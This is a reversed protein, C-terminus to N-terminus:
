QMTVNVSSQFIRCPTPAGSFGNAKMPRHIPREGKSNVKLREQWCQEGVNKVRRTTPDFQLNVALNRALERYAWFRYSSSDITATVTGHQPFRMYDSADGVTTSRDHQLYIPLWCNMQNPGTGCETGITTGKNAYEQTLLEDWAPKILYVNIRRGPEAAESPWRVYGEIVPSKWDSVNYAFKASGEECHKAFDQLAPFDFIVKEEKLMLRLNCLDELLGRGDEASDALILDSVGRRILSLAGTNEIPGGDSLRITGKRGTNPDVAPINVGWQIAGLLSAFGKYVLAGLSPDVNQTDLFAASARVGTTISEFPLTEFRGIRASGHGFPTIEYLSYANPLASKQGQTTNLIWVPLSPDTDYMKRLEAWTNKTGDVRLTHGEGAANTYAWHKDPDAASRPMPNLGWTREIGTEYANIVASQAGFFGPVIELFAGITYGAIKRKPSNQKDGTPITIEDTFVDPWRVIHAQWRYPDADGGPISAVRHHNRLCVAEPRPEAAAAAERQASAIANQRSNRLYKSDEMDKKNVLWAPLCDAFISDFAFQNQGEKQARAWAMKKSFYWYAGYGGGSATSIAHVHQLLGSQHLGHLVGHAFMGAKTGGGSLALGIRPGPRGDPMDQVYRNELQFERQLSEATMAALKLPPKTDPDAIHM